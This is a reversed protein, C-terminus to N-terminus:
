TTSQRRLCPRGDDLDPDGSRVDLVQHNALLELDELRGDQILRRLLIM